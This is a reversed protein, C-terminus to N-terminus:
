NIRNKMSVVQDVVQLVSALLDDSMTHTAAELYIRWGHEM